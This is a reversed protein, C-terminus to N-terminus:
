VRHFIMCLCCYKCFNIVLLMWTAMSLTWFVYSTKQNFNFINLQEKSSTDTKFDEFCEKLFRTQNAM